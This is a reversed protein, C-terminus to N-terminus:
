DRKKIYVKKKTKGQGGRTGLEITKKTTKGQRKYYLEIEEGATKDKLAAKLDDFDDITMEDIKVIVDGTQLGAKQAASGDVTNLIMLGDIGSVDDAPYVGLFPKSSTSGEEFYFDDDGEVELVMDNLDEFDYSYSKANEGLTATVTKSKADRLYTVKINEGPKYQGIASELEKITRVDEGNIATIIDGKEIGAKRAGSGKATGTISIGSSTEEGLYVGLFAGKKMKVEMNPARVIIDQENGDDDTVIVHVDHGNTTSWKVNDDDSTIEKTVEKRNGDEDVTIITIKKTKKEEKDQAQALSSVAFFAILVLSTYKMM